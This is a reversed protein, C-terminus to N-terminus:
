KDLESVIREAIKDSSLGYKEYLDKPAASEPVEDNLGIRKLHTPNHECM